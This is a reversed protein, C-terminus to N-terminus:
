RRRGIVRASAPLDAVRVVTIEGTKTDVRGVYGAPNALIQLLEIIM